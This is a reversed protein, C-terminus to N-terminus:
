DRGAALQEAFATTSSTSCRMSNGAAQHVASDHQEICCLLLLYCRRCSGLAPWVQVVRFRACFGEGDCDGEPSCAMAPQPATM